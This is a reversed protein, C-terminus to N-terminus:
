DLKPLRGFGDHHVLLRELGLAAADITRGGLYTASAFLGLRLTTLKRAILSAGEPPSMRITFDAERGTLSIVAALSRLDVRMEPARAQLAPLAPALNDAVVVETASVVVGDRRRERLADAERALRDGGEVSPQALAM